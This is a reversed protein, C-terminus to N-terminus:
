GLQIKLNPYDREKIRDTKQEDIVTKGLERKRSVLPLRAQVILYIRGERIIAVLCNEGERLPNPSIGNNM